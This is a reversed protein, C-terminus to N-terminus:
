LEEGLFVQSHAEGRKVVVPIPKHAELWQWALLEHQRVGEPDTVVASTEAQGFAGARRIESDSRHPMGRRALDVLRRTLKDSAARAATMSDDRRRLSENNPPM